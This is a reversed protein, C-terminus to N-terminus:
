TFCLTVEIASAPTMSCAADNISTTATPVWPRLPSTITLHRFALDRIRESFQNFKSVFALPGRASEAPPHFPGQPDFADALGRVM